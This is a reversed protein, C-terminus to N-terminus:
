VKTTRQLLAHATKRMLVFYQWPLLIPTMGDICFPLKKALLENRKKHTKALHVLFYLHATVIALFHQFKGKLLERFAAIGDLFLRIAFVKIFNTFPLHKYLMALNNRINFLLKQASSAELSGGGVHYVVSGSICSINFGMRRIKWCLDIEEMHFRFDEDFRSAEFFLNKRVAIAAGSAWFLSYRHNDYQGSDIECTDFVRGLCYPYGYHDIMGGAAGAYEFRHKDNHSLIKPQAAGLKADTKFADLVSKLWGSTVEVDNNLFILIDGSALEAARNNGGCYGYNQDLTHVIVTPYESQVWLVTGDTSANDAIIIETGDVTSAVM